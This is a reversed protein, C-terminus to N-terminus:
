GKIMNLEDSQDIEDPSPQDTTTLRANDFAYLM